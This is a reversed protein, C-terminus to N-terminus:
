PLNARLKESIASSIGLPYSRRREELYEDYNSVRIECVPCVLARERSILKGSCRSGPCSFGELEASSDEELQVPMQGSGNFKTMESDLYEEMSEKMDPTPYAPNDASWKRQIQNAYKVAVVNASKMPHLSYSGDAKSCSEIFKMAPEIDDGIDRGLSEGLHLAFFLYNLGEPDQPTPAFGGSPKRCGQRFEWLKDGIDKLCIDLELDSIIRVAFYAACLCTQTEWPNLSFCEDGVDFCALLYKKLRERPLIEYLQSDDEVLNWLIGIANFLVPINAIEGDSSDVVEVIGDTIKSCDGVFDIISDASQGFPEIEHFHKSHVLKEDYHLGLLGKVVGIANRTAYISPNTENASISFGSERFCEGLFSLVTEKRARIRDAKDMEVLGRVIAYLLDVSRNEFQWRISYGRFVPDTAFVPESGISRTNLFPGLTQSVSDPVAVFNLSSELYQSFASLIEERQTESLIYM